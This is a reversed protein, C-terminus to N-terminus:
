NRPFLTFRLPRPECHIVSLLRKRKGWCLSVGGGGQLEKWCPGKLDARVTNQVTFMHGESHLHGVACVSCVHSSMHQCVTVTHVHGYPHQISNKKRLKYHFCLSIFGTWLSKWLVPLNQTTVPRGPHHYCYPFWIYSMLVYLIAMRKNRDLDWLYHWLDSLPRRKNSYFVLTTNFLGGVSGVHFCDNRESAPWQTSFPSAADATNIYM